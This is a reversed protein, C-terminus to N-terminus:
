ALATPEDKRSLPLTVQFTSGGKKTYAIEGGLTKCITACVFLGLGTGQSPAKTSFLPTFLRAQDAEPVGPGSDCVSILANDGVTRVQVTVQGGAQLAECANQLLNSFLQVLLTRSGKVFTPSDGLQLAFAMPVRRPYLQVWRLAIELPDSLDLRHAEEERLFSLREHLLERVRATAATLAEWEPPPQVQQQQLRQSLLLIGTFLNHLEHMLGCTHMGIQALRELRETTTVEM